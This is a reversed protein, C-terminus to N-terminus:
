TIEAIVDTRMLKGACLLRKAVWGALTQYRLIVDSKMAKSDCQLTKTGGGFPVTAIAGGNYEIGCNGSVTVPFGQIQVNNYSISLTKTTVPMTARAELAKDAGAVTITYSQSTSVRTNGDYWGDFTAGSALVCSYTISDGDYGTSSSVSASVVNAGVSASFDYRTFYMTITAEFLGSKVAESYGGVRLSSNRTSSTVATSSSFNDLYVGNDSSDNTSVSLVNTGDIYVISFAKRSTIISFGSRKLRAFYYAKTPKASGNPYLINKATTNLEMYHQNSSNILIAFDGSPASVVSDDVHDKYTAVNDKNFYLSFTQESSM